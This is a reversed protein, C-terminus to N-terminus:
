RFKKIKELIQKQKDSTYNNSELERVAYMKDTIIVQADNTVSQVGFDTDIVNDDIMIYKYNITGKKLGAANFGALRKNFDVDNKFNSDGLALQTYNGGIILYNLAMNGVKFNYDGISPGDLM